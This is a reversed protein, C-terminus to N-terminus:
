EFRLGGKPIADSIRFRLRNEDPLQSLSRDKKEEDAATRGLLLLFDFARSGSPIGTRLIMLLDYAPADFVDDFNALFQDAERPRLQKARVLAADWGMRDYPDSAGPDGALFLQFHRELQALGRQWLLVFPDGAGLDALLFQLCYQSFLITERMQGIAIPIADYATIHEPSSFLKGFLRLLNNELAYDHYKNRRVYDHLEDLAQMVGLADPNRAKLEADRAAIRAVDEESVVQHFRQVAEYTATEPDYLIEVTMFENPDDTTSPTVMSHFGGRRKTSATGIFPNTFGFISRQTEDVLDRDHEHGAFYLPLVDPHAFHEQHGFERWLAKSHRSLPFHGSQRDPELTDAGYRLRMTKQFLEKLQCEMRSLGGFFALSIEEQTNDMADMLFHFARKGSETVEARAQLVIMHQNANGSERHPVDVVCVWEGSRVEKWFLPFVEELRAPNKVQAEAKAYDGSAPDFLFAGAGPREQPTYRVTYDDRFLDFDGDPYSLTASFPELIRHDHEAPAHEESVAHVHGNPHGDVEEAHLRMEIEPYQERLYNAFYTQKDVINSAGGAMRAWYGQSDKLRDYMGVGFVMNILFQPLKIKKGYSRYSADEQEVRTLMEAAALWQQQLLMRRDKLGQLYEEPTQFLMLLRKGGEYARIKHEVEAMKRELDQIQKKLQGASLAHNIGNGVMAGDHNGIARAPIDHVSGAALFDFMAELYEQWTNNSLAAFHDDWQAESWDASIQDLGLKEALGQGDQTSLLYVVYEALNSTDLVDGLNYRLYEPFQTRIKDECYRQLIPTAMVLAQFRVSVSIASDFTLSQIPTVRQTYHHQQDADFVYRSVTELTTGPQPTTGPDEFRLQIKGRSGAPQIGFLGM